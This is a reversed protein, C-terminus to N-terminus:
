NHHYSALRKAELEKKRLMVSVVSAEGQLYIATGYFSVSVSANAVALACGLNGDLYWRGEYM